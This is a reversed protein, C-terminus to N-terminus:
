AEEQIKDERERIERIKVDLKELALSMNQGLDHLENIRNLTEKDEAGVLRLSELKSSNLDIEKTISEIKQNIKKRDELLLRTIERIKELSLVELKGTEFADATESEDKSQFAQWFLSWENKLSKVISRSSDDGM